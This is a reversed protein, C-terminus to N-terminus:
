AESELEATCQCLDGVSPYAPDFNGKGHVLLVDSNAPLSYSPGFNGVRYASYSPASHRTLQPKRVTYLYNDSIFM